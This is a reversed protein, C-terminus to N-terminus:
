HAEGENSVVVGKNTRIFITVQMEKELERISTM